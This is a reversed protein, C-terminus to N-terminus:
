SSEMAQLYAPATEAVSEIVQACYLWPSTPLDLPYVEQLRRLRKAELRLAKIVDKTTM